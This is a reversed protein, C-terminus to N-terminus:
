RPAEGLLRQLEECREDVTALAEALAEDDNAGLALRHLYVEHATPQTMADIADLHDRICDVLFSGYTQDHLHRGLRAADRALLDIRRRLAPRVGAPLTAVSGTDTRTPLGTLRRGKANM